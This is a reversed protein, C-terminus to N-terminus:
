KRFIDVPDIKSAKLAPFFGAGITILMGFIFSLFFVSGVIYIPFYGISGGMYVNQLIRIVTFGLVMGLVAGIVGMIAAEMVFISIIDKGSFGTAKLIAIDNMKQIITMNLINYIGFAGVLLIALSVSTSMTDRIKDGALSAANSTKWDEVKYETLVQMQDAYEKAKDPDIINASLDTIFTRGRKALQQAANLHMYAKSEDTSKAGTSFIGSVKMVKVVGQASTLTINDDLGLNMKQAIGSGILIANLNFKISNLDGAVMTSQINFMADAETINLGVGNGKIQSKGNNYFVDINVQPTANTVYPEKKIKELLDYPNILSKSSTTIQPNSILIMQNSQRPKQLPKSIEDEAFIKIHPMVKFMERRSYIGFGQTMSNSFIYMGIGLTVGLAAILTQKKRTLIHTLAIDLNVPLKM